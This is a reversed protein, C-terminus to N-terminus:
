SAETKCKHMDFQQQLSDQATKTKAITTMPAKFQKGCADCVAMVPTQNLWKTVRLVRKAM